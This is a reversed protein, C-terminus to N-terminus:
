TAEWHGPVARDDAEAPRDAINIINPIRNKRQGPQRCPRRLAGRAQVYLSQYITETSM